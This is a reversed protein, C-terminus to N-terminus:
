DTVHVVGEESAGPAPALSAFRDIFRQFTDCAGASLATRDAATRELVDLYAHWRELTRERNAPAFFYTGAYPPLSLRARVHAALHLGGLASGEIVYIAGLLYDRNHLDPWLPPPVNTFDPADVQLTKLDHYLRLTHTYPFLFHLEDRQRGHTNLPHEIQAYVHIFERLICTYTAHNLKASTLLQLRDDLEAHLRTTAEKLFTRWIM